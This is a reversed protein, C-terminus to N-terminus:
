PAQMKAVPFFFRLSIGRTKTDSSISDGKGSIGGKSGCFQQMSEGGEPGSSMREQERREFRVSTEKKTM